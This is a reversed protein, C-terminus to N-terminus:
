PRLEPVQTKIYSTALGWPTCDNVDVAEKSAGAQLLIQILEIHGKYAAWHLPTMKFIDPKNMNLDAGLSIIDKIYQIDAYTKCIESSLLVGLELPSLIELEELSKRNSM